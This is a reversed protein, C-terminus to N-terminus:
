SRFPDAFFDIHHVPEDYRTRKHVPEPMNPACRERKQVWSPFTSDVDMGFSDSKTTTFSGSSQPTGAFGFSTTGSTTTFSGSSQPSGFLGSSTGTKDKNLMAKIGLLDIWSLKFAKNRRDILTQHFNTNMRRRLTMFSTYTEEGRHHRCMNHGHEDIGVFYKQQCPQCGYAVGECM